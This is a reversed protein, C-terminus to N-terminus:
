DCFVIIYISLPCLFLLGEYISLLALFVMVSLSFSFEDEEFTKFGRGGRDFSPIIGRSSEWTCHLVLLMIVGTSQELLVAMRYWFHSRELIKKM